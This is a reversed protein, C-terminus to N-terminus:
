KDNTIGGTGYMNLYGRDWTKDSGGTGNRIGGTGKKMGGTPCPVTPYEHRSIVRYIMTTYLFDYIKM